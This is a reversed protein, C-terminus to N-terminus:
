RVSRHIGTTVIGGEREAMAVSAVVLVSVIVLLLAFLRKM